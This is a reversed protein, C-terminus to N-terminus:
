CGSSSNVSVPVVFFDNEKESSIYLYQSSVNYHNGLDFIFDLEDDGDVDGAFVLLPIKHRIILSNIVMEENNKYLILKYNKVESYLPTSQATRKGKSVITYNNKGFTFQYSKNLELPMGKKSIAPFNGEKFTLGQILIQPDGTAYIRYGTKIKKDEDVVPDHERKLSIPIQKRLYGDKQNYIAIWDTKVLSPSFPLEDGHYSTPQAFSVKPICKILGGFIWGDRLKAWSSQIKRNRIEIEDLTSTYEQVDVPLPEKIQRVVKGSISPSDRVLVDPYITFCSKSEESSLDGETLFVLFVTFLFSRKLNLKPIM